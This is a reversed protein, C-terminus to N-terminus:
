QSEEKKYPEPLPMWAVAYKTKYKRWPWYYVDDLAVTYGRYQGHFVRGKKDTGLVVQGIEPLKESCPIWKKEM